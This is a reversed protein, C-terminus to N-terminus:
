TKSRTFYGGFHKRKWTTAPIFLKTLDKQSFITVGRKEIKMIRVSDRKGLTFTYWADIEIPKGKSDVYQNVENLRQIEERIIQKLKSRTLKM